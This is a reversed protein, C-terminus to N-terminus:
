IGGCDEIMHKAASFVNSLFIILILIRIFYFAKWSRIHSAISLSHISQKRFSATSFRRWIGPPTTWTSTQKSKTNTHTSPLSQIPQWQKYSSIFKIKKKQHDSTLIMPRSRKLFENNSQARKHKRSLLLVQLHHPNTEWNRKCKIECKFKSIRINCYPFMFAGCSM